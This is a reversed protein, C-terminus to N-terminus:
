TVPENGARHRFRARKKRQPVILPPRKHKARVWNIAKMLHRNQVMRLELRRKGPINLLSIGVIIALLGQGPVVLMVIGALLLVAGILNKLVLVTWRILAHRGAWSDPPPRRYLFYDAPMRVILWPLVILSGFFMVISGVVSWAIFAEKDPLWDPWAPLWDLLWDFM